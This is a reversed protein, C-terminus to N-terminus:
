KVKLYNDVVELVTVKTGSPLEPGDTMAAVEHISGNVSIQVKGLGAGEGPIRLYVDAVKGVCLNINFAGNSELKRTQKRIIFYCWVFAMGVIVALLCLLLKNTVVSSFCVGGWGFGVLFNILNRISFLSLGGGLDMTDGDGLDADVDMDLDHDMGILTLLAQVLFIVSGVIACGWFVQMSTELQSYWDLMLLGVGARGLLLPPCTLTNVHTILMKM